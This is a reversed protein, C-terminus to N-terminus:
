HRICIEGFQAGSKLHALAEKLQEFAFVKDVVPVLRHQGIARLMAEFM